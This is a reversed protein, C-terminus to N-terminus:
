AWRGADNDWDLSKNQDAVVVISEPPTFRDGYRAALERAREVFGGVSGPYGKIYQVAGGTWAPFGIGLVSAVNPEATSSLIGEDFCRATELAESFLLREVMDEFPVDADAGFHEALGPWLGTRRGDVYDYFGAGSSRGPREFEDIMRDMVPEAPHVVWPTGAAEFAAKKERRVKRPLTLTTEDILKLPSVPYGAKLAAREVSAARCGEGVMALTEDIYSTIVRSTYFGRGDNVVVPNKGLQIGLDVARAITEDATDVGRIIEVLPMRDVPSFFHMGCLGEPRDLATALSGIPLSSTNSALLADTGAHKVAERLIDQKLAPDEFVAEVVADCGAFDSLTDTPVIRALLEDAADQTLAGKAISKEVLKVAYGKGKAAAETSVDSLVVDIGRRAGEYALGAGMMGAGVVGLRKVVFRDFGDPRSAGSRVKQTDAFFNMMNKAVQGTALQAFYRSEVVGASEIDLHSTEVATALIAAAAPAPSGGTRARLRATLPGAMAAVAPDNITGGPVRFGKRDWPQAPEPGSAIWAKAAGILQDPAVVEDILGLELAAEPGHRQGALLVSELAAVVGLLRVSRVIGGGGPLLGLTVEPLGIVTGSANAAIRRHCALALELGGGLAAGNIAAVVPIGLKELRRLLSKIAIGSAELRAADEPALRMMEFIDGGAFFTKKASTIIVGSLKERESELRDVVDALSATFEDTMTNASRGPADMTLIAVDGDTEWRIYTDVDNTTM